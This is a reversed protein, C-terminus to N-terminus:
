DIVAHMQHHIHLFPDNYRCYHALITNATFGSTLHDHIIIRTGLEKVFATRKMMKKCTGATANL